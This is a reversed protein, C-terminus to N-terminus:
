PNNTHLSHTWLYKYCRDSRWGWTVNKILWILFEYVTSSHRYHWTVSITQKGFQHHHATFTSFSSLNQILHMLKRHAPLPQIINCVSRFGDTHSLSTSTQPFSLDYKIKEIGEKTHRRVRPLSEALHIDARMWAGFCGVVDSRYM